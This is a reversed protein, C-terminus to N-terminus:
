IAQRNAIREAHRGLQHRMFLDSGAEADEVPKAFRGCVVHDCRPQWGARDGIVRLLRQQQGVSQQDATAMDVALIERAPQQVPRLTRPFSSGQIQQARGATRRDRCEHCTAWQILDPAESRGVARCHPDSGNSQDDRDTIKLRKNIKNHLRGPNSVVGTYRNGTRGRHCRRDTAADVPCGYGLRRHEADPSRLHPLLSALPHCPSCNGAPDRPCSPQDVCIIMVARYAIDDLQNAGAQGRLFRYWGCEGHECQMGM